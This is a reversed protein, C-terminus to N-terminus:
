TQNFGYECSQLSCLIIFNLKLYSVYFLNHNIFCEKFRKLIYESFYSKNSSFLYIQYSHM